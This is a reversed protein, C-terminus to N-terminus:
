DIGLAKRVISASAGLLQQNKVIWAKWKEILTPKMEPPSTKLQELINEIENRETQPVGDTYGGLESDILESIDTLGLKASILKATRLIETVGKKSNLIDKQLDIVLSSM